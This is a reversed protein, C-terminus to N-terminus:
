GGPKTEEPETEASETEAPETEAPETEASEAVAPEAVAPETEASEAVAPETEASEAVAPETEASEAVAPETEASEAVAPKPAIPEAQRETTTVLHRLVDEDANLTRALEEVHRADLVFRVLVYHGEQFGKISYALRRLGWKEEEAAISGGRDTILGVARQVAAAVGDEDAEPSVVLMLEYGRLREAPL